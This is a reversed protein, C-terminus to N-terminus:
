QLVLKVLLPRLVVAISADIGSCNISPTDAQVYSSCVDCDLPRPSASRMNSAHAGCASPVGIPRKMLLRACAYGGHRQINRLPLNLRDNTPRGVRPWCPYSRVRCGNTKFGCDRLNTNPSENEFM